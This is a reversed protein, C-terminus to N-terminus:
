SHTNDLFSRLFINLFFYSRFRFFAIALSFSFPVVVVGFFFIQTAAFYRISRPYITTFSSCLLQRTLAYFKFRWYFRFLYVYWLLIDCIDRDYTIRIPLFHANDMYKCEYQIIIFYFFFFYFQRFYVYIFIFESLYTLKTSTCHSTVITKNSKQYQKFHGAAAVVVAETYCAFANAARM